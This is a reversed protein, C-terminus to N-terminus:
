AKTSYGYLGATRIARQGSVGHGLCRSLLMTLFRAEATRRELVATFPQIHNLPLQPDM